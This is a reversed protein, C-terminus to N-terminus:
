QNRLQSRVEGLIKGLNNRGHWTGNLLTPANITVGAGWFSDRTTEVLKREATANLKARLSVNQSFKCLVIKKM